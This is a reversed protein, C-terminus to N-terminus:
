RVYLEGDIDGNLFAKSIHAQHVPWGIALFRGVLVLLVDFMDVPSLTEDYVISGKQVYRKAVLCAKYLSIHGIEDLKYKFVTQCLIADKDPPVQSAKMYQEERLLEARRENCNKLRRM